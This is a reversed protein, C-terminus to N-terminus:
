APREAEDRAWAEPSPPRCQEILEIATRARVSVDEWRGAAVDASPVLQSGLGLCAAGADLWPTM